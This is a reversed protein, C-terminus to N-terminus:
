PAEAYKDPAVYVWQGNKIEVLVLSEKAIGVHDTATMNFIGSIGIFNTIDNEFCDRLKAADPGVKGLCYDSMMVADWAHGGFTSRPAGNTYAQYEQIYQLLVKKQPDTDPLGEAVLLKGIPFLVGEAADGALDIFAKSGIGHNHVIPIDFGLERFQVTLPAAEGSTAHVVLGEPNLGKIKTLQARFDKDGPQFLEDAVVEIGADGYVQTMANRSDQGFANNVGLSAVSKVGKAKWYDAQVQAVPLNEQPTKFIWYRDSIPTVIASSSAMSIMPIKAETAVDVMAISAPSGSSGILVNVKDQEILKKAALVAKGTDTADDEVTVELKHMLGDPGQVGGAKNIKEMLMLGTDREPVGLSSAPGTISAVMGLKYAEGEKAAPPETPMAAAPQTPAPTPGSSCAAIVVVIVTLWVLLLLKKM